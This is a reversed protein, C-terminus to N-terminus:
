CREGKKHHKLGIKIIEEFFQDWYLTTKYWAKHIAKYMKEELEFEIKVRETETMTEAERNM